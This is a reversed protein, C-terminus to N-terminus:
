IYVRNADFIWLKYAEVADRNDWSKAGRGIGDLQELHYLIMTRTIIFSIVKKRM